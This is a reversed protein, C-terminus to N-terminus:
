PKVERRKGTEPDIEYTKKVAEQETILFEVRRNKEKGADTENSAIPKSEGLGKSSLREAAVGHDVLYKKVAAARGESLEKNYKESGDSDTHGEISVKKIQPNDQLVGVIEDLLGHSEERIESKNFEFLIKEKIVIKDATVEVRKPKPEPEPPPEPPPPPTGEVVIASKGAFTTPGCGTTALGAVLLAAGLLLRHPLFAAGPCHAGSRGPREQSM